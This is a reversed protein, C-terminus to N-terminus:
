ESVGLEILEVIRKSQQSPNTTRPQTAPPQPPRRASPRPSASTGRAQHSPALSRRSLHSHALSATLSPTHMLTHILTYSHILTHTYAHIPSHTHMLSHTHAHSHTYSQTCSHTYRLTHSCAIPASCHALLNSLKNTYSIQIKHAACHHPHRARGTTESCLHCHLERGQTCLHHHGSSSHFLEIFNCLLTNPLM